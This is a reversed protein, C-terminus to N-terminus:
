SFRWHLPAKMTHVIVPTRGGSLLFARRQSAARNALADPLAFPEGPRRVTQSSSRGGLEKHKGRKEGQLENSRSTRADAEELGVPLALPRASLHSAGSPLRSRRRRPVWLPSGQAPLPRKVDLTLLGNNGHRAASTGARGPRSARVGWRAGGCM